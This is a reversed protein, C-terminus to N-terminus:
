SPGLAAGQVWAPGFVNGFAKDQVNQRVKMM